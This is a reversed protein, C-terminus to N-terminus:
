LMLCDYIDLVTQGLIVLNADVKVGTPDVVVGSIVDRNVVPQCNDFKM